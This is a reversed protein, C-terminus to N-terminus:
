ATALTASRRNLSISLSLVANVFNDIKPEVASTASARLPSLLGSKRQTGRRGRRNILAISYKTLVTSLRREAVTNPHANRLGAKVLRALSVHGSRSRPFPYRTMVLAVFLNLWLGVLFRLLRYRTLNLRWISPPFYPSLSCM